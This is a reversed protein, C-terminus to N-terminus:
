TDLRRSLALDPGDAQRKALGDDGYVGTSGAPVAFGIGVRVWTPRAICTSPLTYAVVKKARKVQFDLGSCTLATGGRNTLGIQTKNGLHRVVLVYKRRPTKIESVLRWDYGTGLKRLRVSGAVQQPTHSLEVRTIDAKKNSSSNSIKDGSIQQVDHAPDTHRFTQASAAAPLALTAAAALGTLTRLAPRITM